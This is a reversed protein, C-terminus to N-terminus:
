RGQYIDNGKHSKDMETKAMAKKDAGKGMNETAMSKEKQGMQMGDNAMKDGASAGLSALAMTAVITAIIATKM